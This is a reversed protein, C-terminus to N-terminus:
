LEYEEMEGWSPGYSLEVPIKLSRDKIKITMEMNEKVKKMVLDRDKPLHQWVLEDHVNLLIEVEPVNTFVKQIAVELMEGVTNQPSFAYGARYLEDNFRGMFQRKRGFSSILTRTAKLEERIKRQWESRFPNTAKARGLLKRCDSFALHFDERALITQLMKPGQGYNTAHEVTKGINRLEKLTHDESTISDKFLASPNYPITAPIAFLTKANDWHIDKGERFAKIRGLDEAEWAVVQAEAQVYDAKGMEKGEDPIFLKRIMQGEEGRKPINQLNGGEGEGKKPSGFHSKSSSTRWTSIFSYSTHVRGDVDANMSTYTSALKAFKQYELIWDLVEVKPFKNKLKKLADKDTTVKGTKHHYQFPLGLLGYILRQKAGSANLNYSDGAYKNVKHQAEDARQIFEEGLIDKQAVNLRVGRIMMALMSPMVSMTRLYGEYTGLEKTNKLVVPFIEREVCDDKGNYRFESEDTRKGLNVKGEDKYYPEWTYISTLVELGKKIYPYSAHHCLMTDEYTGEACRIGYYKGLVSLDYAGGQFIKRIKPNLFVKSIKQWLLAEESEEWCLKQKKIFPVIFARSPTSAFGVCWVIPGSQAPLTEIDIALYEPCEQDLSDLEKLLQKYSLDIDFRRQPYKLEPFEAQEKIRELDILFLPLVNQSMKKKEGQLVERVENILRNVYSPHFSAYVKFGPVLTCPLVSGRWKTIRRKGTLAKLPEVGTAILVNPGKGTRKRVELLGELWRRLVDVHEQGEQTLRKKQQDLYFYGIDNKPPRQNFVNNLIVLSRIIGVRGFCRNLLQGASGVFPEGRRDEEKGPAEGIFCMSADLPDIPLIINTKLRLQNM